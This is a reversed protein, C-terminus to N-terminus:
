IHLRYFTVSGYQVSVSGGIRRQYEFYSNPVGFGVAEYRTAGPSHRLEVSISISIDLFLASQSELCEVSVLLFRLDFLASM